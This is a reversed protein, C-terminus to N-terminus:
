ATVQEGNALGPWPDTTTDVPSDSMKREERIRRGAKV